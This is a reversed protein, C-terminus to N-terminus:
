RNPNNSNDSGGGGDNGAADKWNDDGNKRWLNTSGASTLTIAVKEGNSNVLYLWNVAGPQVNPMGRSNFTAEYKNDSSRQPFSVMTKENTQQGTVGSEVATKIVTPLDTSSSQTEFTIGAPLFTTRGNITITRAVPDILVTQNANNRLAEFKASQFVQSVQQAASNLQYSRNAKIISPTAIAAGIAIIGATTVMEFATFGQENKM